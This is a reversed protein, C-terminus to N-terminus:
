ERVYNNKERKKIQLIILSILSIVAHILLFVYPIVSSDSTQPATFGVAERSEASAIQTETEESLATTIKRRLAEGDYETGSIMYVNKVNASANRVVFGFSGENVDVINELILTRSLDGVRVTMEHLTRKEVPIEVTIDSGEAMAASMEDGLEGFGDCKGDARVPASTINVPEDGTCSLMFALYGNSSVIDTFSFTFSVTYNEPTVIEPFVVYARTDDCNDIHLYGGYISLRFGDAGSTGKKIGAAGLTDTDTFDQRYIIDGTETAANVKASVYLPLFIMVAFSMILFRKCIHLIRKEELNLKYRKM